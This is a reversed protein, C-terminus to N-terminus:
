WYFEDRGVGRGGDGNTKEESRWGSASSEGFEGRASEDGVRVTETESTAGHRKTETVTGNAFIVDVFTPNSKSTAKKASGSPGNSEGM